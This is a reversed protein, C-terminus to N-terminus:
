ADEVIPDNLNRVRVLNGDIPVYEGEVIVGRYDRNLQQTGHASLSPNPAISNM